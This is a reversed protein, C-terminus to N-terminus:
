PQRTLTEGNRPPDDVNQTFQCAEREGPGSVTPEHEHVPMHDPWPDASLVAEHHCQRCSVALTMPRGAKIMAASTTTIFPSCRTRGTLTHWFGHALM